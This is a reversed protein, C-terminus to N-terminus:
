DTDTPSTRKLAVMTGQENQDVALRLTRLIYTQLYDARPNM